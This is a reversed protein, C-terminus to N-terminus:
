GTPTAMDGVLQGLDPSRGADDEGPARPQDSNNFAQGSENRITATLSYSLSLTAKAFMRPSKGFTLWARRPAASCSARPCRTM